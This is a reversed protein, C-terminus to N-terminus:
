KERGVSPIAGSVHRADAAGLSVGLLGLPEDRGVLAERDGVNVLRHQMENRLRARVNGIDSRPCTAIGAGERGHPVTDHRDLRSVLQARAGHGQM